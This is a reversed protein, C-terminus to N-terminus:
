KIKIYKKISGYVTNNDILYKGDSIGFYGVIYKEKKGYKYISVNRYTKIDSKRCEDYYENAADLSKFTSTHVPKGRFVYETWITGVGHLNEKENELISDYLPYENSVIIRLKTIVNGETLVKGALTGYNTKVRVNPTPAFDGIYENAAETFTQAQVLMGSIVLCVIVILNKM